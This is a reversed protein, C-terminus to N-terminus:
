TPVASRFRITAKLSRCTKSVLLIGELKGEISAMFIPGFESLNLCTTSLAFVQTESSRPRSVFKLLTPLFDAIKNRVLRESLQYALTTIRGKQWGHSTALQRCYV